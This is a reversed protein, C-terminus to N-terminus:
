DCFRAPADMRPLNEVEELLRDFPDDETEELLERLLRREQSSLPAIIARLEAKSM